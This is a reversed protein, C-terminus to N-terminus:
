DKHSVVTTVAVADMMAVASNDTSEPVMRGAVEVTQGSMKALEKSDGILRYIRNGAVLTYVGGQLNTNACFNITQAVSMGKHATVSGTGFRSCSVRGTITVGDAENRAKSQAGIIPAYTLVVAVAILSIRTIMSKNM